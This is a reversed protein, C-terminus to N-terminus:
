AVMETDDDEGAAVACTPCWWRAQLPTGCAGHRARGEDDEGRRAWGALLRVVDALEEGAATLRYEFRPPRESYREATLLGSEELKRLRASLINPAIGGLAARIETNRRPGGLLAAVVPLSWRDGLTGAADSVLEIEEESLTHYTRQM